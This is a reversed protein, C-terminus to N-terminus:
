LFFGFTNPKTYYAHSLKSYFFTYIMSNRQANSKHKVNKLLTIFDGIINAKSLYKYILNGLISPLRVVNNLGESFNLLKPISKIRNTFANAVFQRSDVSCNPHCTLNISLGLYKYKEDIDKHFVKTISGYRNKIAKWLYTEEGSSLPVNRIKIKHDKSILPIIKDNVLSETINNRATQSCVYHALGDQNDSNMGFTGRKCANIFDTWNSYPTRTFYLGKGQDYYEGPEVRTVTFHNNDKPSITIQEYDKVLPAGPTAIKYHDDSTEKYPCIHYDYGTDYSNDLDVNKATNMNHFNEDDYSFKGAKTYYFAVPSSVQNSSIKIAENGYHSVPSFTEDDYTVNEEPKTIWISTKDFENSAYVYNSSYGFGFIFLLSALFM